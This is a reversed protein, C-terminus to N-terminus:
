RYLPPFDSLNLRMLVFEGQHKYVREKKPKQPDGVDSYVMEYNLIGSPLDKWQVEQFGLTQYLKRAGSIPDVELWIERVGEAQRALNIMRWMIKTGYGKRETASGEVTSLYSLWWCGTNELPRFYISCIGTKDVGGERNPDRILLTFYKSSSGRYQNESDEVWRGAFVNKGALMISERLVVLDSPDARSGSTSNAAYGSFSVLQNAGNGEKELAKDPKTIQKDFFSLSENFMKAVEKDIRKTRRDLGVEVPPLTPKINPASVFDEDNGSDSKASHSSNADEEEDDDIDNEPTCASNVGSDSENSVVDSTPIPGLWFHSSEFSDCECTVLVENPKGMVFPRCLFCTGEGSEKTKPKFAAVAAAAVVDKIAADGGFDTSALGQQELAVQTRKRKADKRPPQGREHPTHESHGSGAILYWRSMQPDYHLTFHMKCNCNKKHPCYFYIQQYTKNAHRNDSQLEANLAVNSRKASARVVKKLLDISGKSDTYEESVYLRRPSGRGKTMKYIICGPPFDENTHNAAAGGLFLSLNADGGDTPVML